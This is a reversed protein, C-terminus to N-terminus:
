KFKGSSITLIDGSTEIDIKSQPLSAVVEDITKAPVTIQGDEEVEVTLYKIVGIELNTAALKLKGKEVSLLVNSLVPLTPRIGISRSVAQLIPLLDQQLVSFRM